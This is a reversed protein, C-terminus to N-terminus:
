SRFRRPGVIGPVSYFFLGEEQLHLLRSYERFASLCRILNDLNARSWRLSTAQVSNDRTGVLSTKIIDDLDPYLLFGRELRM